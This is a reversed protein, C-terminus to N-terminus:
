DDFAHPNSMLDAERQAQEDDSKARANMAEPSYDEHDYTKTALNDIEKQANFSVQNIHRQIENPIQPSMGGKTMGGQTIMGGSKLEEGLSQGSLSRESLMVQKVDDIFGKKKKRSMGKSVLSNMELFHRAEQDTEFPRIEQQNIIIRNMLETSLRVLKSMSSVSHGKDIWWKLLNAVARDNVRTSVVLNANTKLMDDM